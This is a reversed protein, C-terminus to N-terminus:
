AGQEIPQAEDHDQRRHVQAPTGAEQATREAAALSAEVAGAVSRGKLWRDVRSSTSLTTEVPEVVLDLVTTKELITAPSARLRDILAYAIGAGTADGGAHLIRAHSHAAEMGMALKGDHEDFQVGRSIMERIAVPGEYCLIGATDPDSLGAGAVLTDAVHEAVSDRDALVVAVGGQAFRTNSMALHAKSVVTVEHGAELAELAATLGAVGSGVILVRM